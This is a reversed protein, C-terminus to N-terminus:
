ITKNQEMSGVGNFLAKASISIKGAIKGPTYDRTIMASCAFDQLYVEGNLFYDKTVMLAVANMCSEANLNAQIRWEHRTVMDSYDVVVQLMIDAFLLTTCALIMVATVAIFGGLFNQSSHKQGKVKNKIHM